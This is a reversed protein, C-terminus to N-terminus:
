KFQMLPTSYNTDNLRTKMNYTKIFEEVSMYDIGFNEATKKDIEDGIMLADKKFANEDDFYWFKNYELMKTNPKYRPHEENYCFDYDGQKIDCYFTVASYIYKLKDEFRGRYAFGTSFGEKEIIEKIRPQNTVIFLYEPSLEKIANLVDFKFKMDWIDQPFKNGSITEILVDDLGCFLVKYKKM